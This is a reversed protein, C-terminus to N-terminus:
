SSSGVHEQNSPSKKVFHVAKLAGAITENVRRLDDVNPQPLKSPQPSINPRPFKNINPRPSGKCRCVGDEHMAQLDKKLRRVRDLFEIYTTEPVFHRIGTEFLNEVLDLAGREYFSLCVLAYSQILLDSDISNSCFTALWGIEKMRDLEDLWTQSDQKHDLYRCGTRRGQDLIKQTAEEVLAILTEQSGLTTLIRNGKTLPEMADQLHIPFSNIEEEPNLATRTQVVIPDPSPWPFPEGCVKEYTVLFSPRAFFAMDHRQVPSEQELATIRDEQIMMKFENLDFLQERDTHPPSASSGFQPPDDSLRLIVHKLECPTEVSGFIGVAPFTKSPSM